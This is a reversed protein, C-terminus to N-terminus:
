AQSSTRRYFVDVVDHGLRRGRREFKTPPRFARVDNALEQAEVLEFGPVEAMIELAHRAYDAWDTAVHFLGGAKLVRAVEAVFAPQVLRRKHHRKKPWPDPFFLNVAAFSGAELLPMVEVADRAIVRVNTVGTQEILLLLHGIGPEHVEVGLYDLRPCNVATTVLAGGDGFGIDLVREARRGFVADLDLVFDDTKVGFRPMLTALARSQAATLRGPRRVFSRVRRPHAVNAPVDSPDHSALEKAGVM